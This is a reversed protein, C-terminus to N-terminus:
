ISFFMNTDRFRNVISQEFFYQGLFSSCQVTLKYFVKGNYHEKKKALWSYTTNTSM